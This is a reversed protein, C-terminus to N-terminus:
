SCGCSGNGARARDCSPCLESDGPIQMQEVNGKTLPTLFSDSVFLKPANYSRVNAETRTGPCKAADKCRWYQGYPGSINELQGKCIPCPPITVLGSNTEQLNLAEPPACKSTKSNQFNMLLESGSLSRTNLIIIVLVVRLTM